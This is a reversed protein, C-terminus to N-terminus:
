SPPVPRLSTLAGLTWTVQLAGPALSEAASDLMVEPDNPDREEDEDQAPVDAPVDVAISVDDSEFPM